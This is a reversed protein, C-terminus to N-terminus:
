YIQAGTLRHHIWLFLNSVRPDFQSQDTHINDDMCIVTFPLALYQALDGVTCLAKWAKDAISPHSPSLSIYLRPLWIATSIWIYIIIALTTITHMVKCLVHVWAQRKELNVSKEYM